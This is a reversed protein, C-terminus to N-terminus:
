CSDDAIGPEDQSCWHLWSCIMSYSLRCSATSDVEDVAHVAPPAIAEGETALLMRMMPHHSANGALRAALKEALQAALTAALQLISDYPLWSGARLICAKEILFM